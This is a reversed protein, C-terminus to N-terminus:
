TRGKFLRGSVACGAFGAERRSRSCSKPLLATDRTCSHPLKQPTSSCKRHRLLEFFRTVHRSRPLEMEGCLRLRLPPLQKLVARDHMEHDIRGAGHEGDIGKAGCLQAVADAFQDALGHQLHEKGIVFVGGPM